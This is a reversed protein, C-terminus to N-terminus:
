ELGRPHSCFAAMTTEATTGEQPQPHGSFCQKGQQQALGAAVAERLERLHAIWGTPHFIHPNQLVSWPIELGKYPVHVGAILSLTLLEAPLM